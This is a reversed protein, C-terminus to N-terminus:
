ILFDYKIKIGENLNTKSFLNPNLCKPCFIDKSKKYMFFNMNSNIDLVHKETYKKANNNDDKVFSLKM